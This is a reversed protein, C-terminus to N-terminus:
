FTVFGTEKVSSGIAMGTEMGRKMEALFPPMRLSYHELCLYITALPRRQRTIRNEEFLNVMKSPPRACGMHNCLRERRQLDFSGAIVQAKLM